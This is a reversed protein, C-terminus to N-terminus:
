STEDIGNGNRGRLVDRCAAHIPHNHHALHLDLIARLQASFTKDREAEFEALEQRTCCCHPIDALCRLCRMGDSM